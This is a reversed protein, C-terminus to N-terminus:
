TIHFLRFVRAMQFLGKQNARSKGYRSGDTRWSQCSWNTWMQPFREIGVHNYMQYLSTYNTWLDIGCVKLCGNELNCKDIAIFVTGMDPYLCGNKYWYSNYLIPSSCHRQLHSEHKGMTRTGSLPVGLKLRRWWSSLTTTTTREEWYNNWQALWKRVDEWWGLSTTALTIGCACDATEAMGMLFPMHMNWLEM